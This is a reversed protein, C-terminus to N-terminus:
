LTRIYAQILDKRLSCLCCYRMYPVDLKYSHVRLQVRIATKISSITQLASIFKPFSVIIFDAILPPCIFRHNRLDYKFRHQKCICYKYENTYETKVTGLKVNRREVVEASVKIMGRNNGKILGILKLDAQSATLGEYIINADYLTIRYKLDTVESLRSTFGVTKSTRNSKSRMKLKGYFVFLKESKNLNTRIRIKLYNRSM